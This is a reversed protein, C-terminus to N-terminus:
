FRFFGLLDLNMNPWSPPSPIFDEEIYFKNKENM